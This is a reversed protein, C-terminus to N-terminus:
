KIKVLSSNIFSSMEVECEGETLSVVGGMEKIDEWFKTSFEKKEVM